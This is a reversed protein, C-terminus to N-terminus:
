EADTEAKALFRDANETLIPEVPFVSLLVVVKSMVTTDNTVDKFSFGASLPYMGCALFEEVADHGRIMTTAQIFAINNVDTYPCDVAHEVEYDLVSMWSGLAFVKEQRQLKSPLPGPLYFWVKTWGVSWKNKVALRL